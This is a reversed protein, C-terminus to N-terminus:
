KVRMASSRKPYEDQLPPQRQSRDTVGIVNYCYRTFYVCRIHGARCYKCFASDQGSWRGVSPPLMSISSESAPVGVLAPVRNPLALHVALIDLFSLLHITARHRSSFFLCVKSFQKTHIIPSIAPRIIVTRARRQSLDLANLLRLRSPRCHRKTKGQTYIM